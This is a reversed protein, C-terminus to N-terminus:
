KPAIRTLKWAPNGGCRARWEEDTILPVAAKAGTAYAGLDTKEGNDLRSKGAGAAPSGVRLRFDGVPSSPDVFLPDASLDGEHSQHADGGKGNDFLLNNNHAQAAAYVKMEISANGAVICNTMRGPQESKDGINWAANNGYLVCHDYDGFCGDLGAWNNWVAICNWLRCPQWCKFGYHLNKYAICSDFLTDRAKIDFGADGCRSCCVRRFVYGHGFEEAGIGDTNNKEYSEGLGTQNNDLVCDEILVGQAASTGKEGLGIGYGLNDTGRIRRFVLHSGAPASITEGACRTIECDDVTVHGVWGALAIGSGPGESIKFGKLHTYSAAPGMLAFGKLTAAGPKEAEIHLYKGPEGGSSVTCREDYAGAAAVLRTGPKLKELAKKFTKWPKEASGDGDADNGAPSVHRTEAVVGMETDEFALLHPAHPSVKEYDCGANKWGASELAKRAGAVRDKDQESSLAREVLKSETEEPRMPAAPRTSWLGSVWVRDLQGGLHSSVYRLSHEGAALRLIRPAPVWSWEGPFGHPNGAWKGDVSVRWFGTTLVRQWLRYLGPQSIRFKLELTGGSLSSAQGVTRGWLVSKGGSAAPCVHAQLGGTLAGNEAELFLEETGPVAPAVVAPPSAPAVVNDEKPGATRVTVDDFTCDGGEPLRLDLALGLMTDDTKLKFSYAQWDLNKSAPSDSSRSNEAGTITLPKARLCGGKGKIWVSILYELGPELEVNALGHIYRSGSAIRLAKAGSHADATVAAGKTKKGAPTLELDEFGYSYVLNQWEASQCASNM